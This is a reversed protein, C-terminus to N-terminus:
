TRRLQYIQSGLGTKASTPTISLIELGIDVFLDELENIEIELPDWSRSKVHFSHELYLCGQDHLQESWTTLAKSPDISHDFSNTYVIDFQRIWDQRRDHFDWQVTMPFDAATHSIETGIITAQPYFQQFLKQEAANRTGHCLIMSAPGHMRSIHSVTNRTVHVLKIKQLNAETQAQVYEQYDKYPYIKM